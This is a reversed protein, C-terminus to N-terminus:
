FPRQERTAIQESKHKEWKAFVAARQEETPFGILRPNLFIMQPDSLPQNPPVEFYSKLDQKSLVIAAALAVDRLQIFYTTETDKFQAV